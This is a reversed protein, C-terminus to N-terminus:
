SRFSPAIVVRRATTNELTNSVTEHTAGGLLWQRLDKMGDPPFIIKVCRCHLALVTALNRAGDQGPEDNDGVVVIEERSHAYEVTMSVCARCGPRGITDFGLDLGAACDSEGEVVLLPGQGSLGLPVFLGSKSGTVAAKAGERFRRRLGIVRGRADNMPFVFARGDWGVQLRRLSQASVGLAASLGILQHPQIQGHYMAALERFQDRIAARGDLNVRIRYSRRSKLQNPDNRLVHLWGADGCRKKAGDSVRACIAVSGGETTLCWDPKGCVPCPRTKSVRLMKEDSM